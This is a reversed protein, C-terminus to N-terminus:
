FVCYVYKEWEEMTALLTFFFNSTVKMRFITILFFYKKVTCFIGTLAPETTLCSIGHIPEKVKMYIRYVTSIIFRFYNQSKIRFKYAGHCCKKTDKQVTSM